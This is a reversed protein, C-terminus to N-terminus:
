LRYGYNPHEGQLSFSDRGKIGTSATTSSKIHKAMVLETRVKGWLISSSSCCEPSLILINMAGNAVAELNTWLATALLQIYHTFPLPCLQTRRQCNTESHWCSYSTARVPQPVPPSKYFFFRRAEGKLLTKRIFRTEAPDMESSLVNLDTSTFTRILIM